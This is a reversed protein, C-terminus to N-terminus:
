DDVTIINNKIAYMLLSATNKSGTKSIINTRHNKVTKLSIFLKIAIENNTLGEAILKLIEIERKTLKETNELEGQPMYKKTFYPIFESSFYQKGEAVQKIASILTKANSNKLLYGQVGIQIMKELYKEEDLMSLAIIRVDPYLSKVRKTAEIGDMEPMKIDLLLIDPKASEMKKLLELGNSAEDIIIIEEQGKLSINVGKRFFEHDDVLIIRIKGM